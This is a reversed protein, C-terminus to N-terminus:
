KTAAQVATVLAEYSPPNALLAGNLFFTPTGELRLTRTDAKDSAIRDTVAQAFLDATFREVDLGLERAYDEVLERAKASESWEAQKAYIVDHLEFYKGQKDAAEAARAMLEANRHQPLPFNRFILQVESAHEALLRELLPEVAGCAPCQFDGYEILTAKADPNGQRHDSPRVALIAGDANVGSGAPATQNKSGAVVVAGLIVVSLAVIAITWKGSDEGM